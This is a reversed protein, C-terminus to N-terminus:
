QPFKCKKLKIQVPLISIILALRMTIYGVPLSILFIELITGYSIATSKPVYGKPLGVVYIEVLCITLYGFVVLMNAGWSKWDYVKILSLILIASVLSFQANKDAMFSEGGFIICALFLLANGIVLTYLGQISEAFRKEAIKVRWNEM